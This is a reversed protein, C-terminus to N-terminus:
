KFEECFGGFTNGFFDILFPAGEDYTKIKLYLVPRSVGMEGIFIGISSNEHSGKQLSELKWSQSSYDARLYGTEEDYRFRKFNMKYLNDWVGDSRVSIGDKTEMIMNKVHCEYARAEAVTSGIILVAISYLLGSLYKM